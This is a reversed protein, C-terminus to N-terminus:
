GLCLKKLGVSGFVGTELGGATSLWFFSLLSTDSINAFTDDGDCLHDSQIAAQANQRARERM